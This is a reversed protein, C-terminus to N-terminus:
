GFRRPCPQAGPLAQTCATSWNGAFVDVRPKCADHIKLLKLPWTGKTKWHYTGTQTCSPFESVDQGPMFSITLRHATVHSFEAYNIGGRLKDSAIVVRGRPRVVILTYTNGWRAWTGTVHRLYKPPPVTDKVKGVANDASQGCASALLALVTIPLAVRRM